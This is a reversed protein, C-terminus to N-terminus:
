AGRCRRHIDMRRRPEDIALEGPEGEVLTDQGLGVARAVRQQLPEAEQRNGVVIEVLEVHHADGAEFAMHQRADHRRALVPQRRRLLELRDVMARPLQHAVLLHSPAHQALLHRFRADGHDAGLVERGLIAIPEFLAEHRLYERHQCREGDIRRMGKGEDGIEAEADRQLQLPQAVAVTHLRQQENGPREVAEHPQGPLRHAEQRQLLHDSEIETMEKGAKGDDALAHEADQAVAVDLDLFLRFVEDAQELRRQLPPAAPM